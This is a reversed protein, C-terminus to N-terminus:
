GQKLGHAQKKEDIIRKLKRDITGAKHKWEDELRKQIMQSLHHFLRLTGLTASWNRNSQISHLLQGAYQNGHAASSSLYEMAREYDQSVEKGYLYLKGLQYAAFDNGADSAIEFYQIAKSVDKVSEETLLIKGALYAAYPHDQVSANELYSLAKPIDQATVEGRYLLKGLLYQASSFGGDATQVILKLAEPVDQLLLDGELLAKGLTYAAYINGSEAAKRLLAEGRESDRDMDEGLLLSKGLLYEAYPNGKEAAEELWRLAYSVNKPMDECKLFLKGLTYQAFEHDQKAAEILYAVAKQPNYDEYSKNLYLKGLGYLADTNNLDAAKHFYFAAQELDQPTGSGSLNMQGLRYYLKDDATTQEMSLFGQYARRYWGDSQEKNAPTGVGERCMHGLTYAVYANPKRVDNAAMLFLSYARDEDQAVGQGRHYLNGLSYAAFVNKSAVAKEYWQAAQLHNQEVGYGFSYMKGIRYQLYAPDKTDAEEQIFSELAKEFWRQAAEEDKDCGLGSLLMKGLDHMAFGNGTEAELQMLSFAKELDPPTDKTGYLFTRAQKYADTWWSKKRDPEKETPLSDEPDIQVTDDSPVYLDPDVEPSDVDSRDDDEDALTRDAAINMAEQIVANKITKFEKNDTLAIRQPIEDTYTRIVEERQQYWLDYLAAIREDGALDDVISDVIAKVDAKLYGYQKKGGTRSLRDALKLLKEELAPNDYIGSNIQSVIGAVLERGHLRLDDRHEMQKKYTAQLDQQFIAKAFSARLKNVGSKRLYGQTPEKSYAILHIHPHHSANHFAGYWRLNTIPINLASAIAADETRLMERWRKGTNFGLREADERRLSIIITWVNGTHANLEKSVQSLNVQVGDTTFLGHTGCREAGPRTAIYDAYTKSGVMQDANEEVSRSIFESATGVTPNKQYDDYEHMAKSDPFDRVIQGILQKQKQTAPSLKFTDDIKEVGERTGIYKAYGGISLSANPKLYKFKTVLRPM